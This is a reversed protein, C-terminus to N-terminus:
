NVGILSALVRAWDVLPDSSSNSMGAKMRRLIFYDIRSIIRGKMTFPLIKKHIVQISIKRTSMAIGLKNKPAKFLILYVVYPIYSVVQFM